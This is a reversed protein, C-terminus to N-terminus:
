GSRRHSGHSTGPNGEGHDAPDDSEHSRTTPAPSRPPSLILATWHVREAPPMVALREATEMVEAPLTPVGAITARRQEMLADYEADVGALLDDVSCRLAKALALLTPAEPLGNRSNEWASLTAASRHVRQALVNQKLGAAERLRTVNAGFAKIGKVSLSDRTYAGIPSVTVGYVKTDTHSLAFM